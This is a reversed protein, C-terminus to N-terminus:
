QPVLEVVVRWKAWYAHRELLLIETLSEKNNMIEDREEIYNEERERVRELAGGGTRVM